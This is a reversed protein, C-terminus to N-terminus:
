PPVCWLPMVPVVKSWQRSVHQPQPSSAPSPPSSPIRRRKRVRDVAIGSDQDDSPRMEANDLSSRDGTVQPQPILPYLLSSQDMPDDFCFGFGNDDEAAEEQFIQQHAAQIPGTTQSGMDEVDEVAELHDEEWPGKGTQLCTILLKRLRGGYESDFPLFFSQEMKTRAQEAQQKASFRPRHVTIDSVDQQAIERASPLSRYQPAFHLDDSKSQPLRCASKAILARAKDAESEENQLQSNLKAQSSKAAPKAAEILEKAAKNKARKEKRGDIAIREEIKRRATEKQKKKREDQKREKETIAMGKKKEMAQMAAFCRESTLVEARTHLLTVKKTSRTKESLNLYNSLQCYLRANERMKNHDAEKTTPARDNGDNDIGDQAGQTVGVALGEQERQEWLQKVIPMVVDRSTNHFSSILNHPNCCDNYAQTACKLSGSLSIKENLRERMHVMFYKNYTGDYNRFIQNDMAQLAQSTSAPEALLIFKHERAKTLAAVSYRSSHDDVLILAPRDPPINKAIFDLYAPFNKVDMSGIKPRTLLGVRPNIKAAEALVDQPVGKGVIFCPPLPFGSNSGGAVLSYNDRDGGFQLYPNKSGTPSLVKISTNPEIKRSHEDINIIMGPPVPEKYENDGSVTADVLDFFEEVVEPNMADNRKRSIPEGLFRVRCQPHTLRSTTLSDNFHFKLRLGCATCLYM